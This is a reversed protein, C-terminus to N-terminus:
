RIRFLSYKGITKQHKENEQDFDYDTAWLGVTTDKHHKLKTNEEKLRLIETYMEETIRSLSDTASKQANFNTRSRSITEYLDTIFDLVKDKRM